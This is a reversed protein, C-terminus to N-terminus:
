RAKLVEIWRKDSRIIKDMRDAEKKGYLKEIMITFSLVLVSPPGTVHTMEELFRALLIEKDFGVTQSVAVIDRIDKENFRVLKMLAWDHKEPVEVQLRTLKPFELRTLRAEYGFPGDHISVAQVPIELGTE